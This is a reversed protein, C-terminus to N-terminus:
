PQPQGRRCRAPQSCNPPQGPICRRPCVSPRAHLPLVPPHPRQRRRRARRRGQLPGQQRLPSRRLAATHGAHWPTFQRSNALPSAHPPLTENDLSAWQRHRAEPHLAFGGTVHLCLLASVPTPTSQVQLIHAYPYPLSEVRGQVAATGRLHGPHAAAKATRRLGGLGGAGRPHADLRYTHQDRARLHPWQKHMARGQACPAMIPHLGASRVCSAPVTKSRQHGGCPRAITLPAGAWADPGSLFAVTYPLSASFCGSHNLTSRQAPTSGSPAASAAARACVAAVRGTDAQRTRRLCAWQIACVGTGAAM